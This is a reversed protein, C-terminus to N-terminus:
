YIEAIIIKSSKRIKNKYRESTRDPPKFIHRWNDLM